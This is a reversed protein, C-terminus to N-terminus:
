IEEDEFLADTLTILAREISNVDPAGEFGYITNEFRALSLYNNLFNHKLVVKNAAEEVVTYDYLHNELLKDYLAAAEDSSTANHVYYRSDHSADPRAFWFDQAFDYQFVDNKEYVIRQFPIGLSEAFVRYLASSQGSGSPLEAIAGVLQLAKERVPNANQNGTLKFYFRDYVGLAGAATRYFHAGNLEELDQDDDRQAAFIGLANSFEAMDYLEINIELEAEEKGISLFHLTSFGYQFYQPAAGNIKEFLNSENFRQPRSSPIWGDELISAPFIGLQHTPAASGGQAPDAWRQLPTRYLTDEVRSEEMVAMSVDRESADFDDGRLGFWVGALVLFGVFCGGFIKEGKSIHKRLVRRKKNTFIREKRAM